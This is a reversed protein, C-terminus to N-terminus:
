GREDTIQRGELQNIRMDIYRKAKELDQIESDKFGARAVYKIVNGRWFDMNNLMIFTVPEIEWREYHEPKVVQDKKM